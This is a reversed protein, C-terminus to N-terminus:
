TVPFPGSDHNLYLGPSIFSSGAKCGWIVGLSSRASCLRVFCNWQPYRLGASIPCRRFISLCARVKMGSGHM